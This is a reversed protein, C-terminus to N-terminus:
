EIKRLCTNDRGCLVTVLERNLDATLWSVSCEATSGQYPTCAAIVGEFGLNEAWEVAADHRLPLTKTHDENFSMMLMIPIGIILGAMISIPLASVRAM